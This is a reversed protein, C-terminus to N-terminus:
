KDHGAQASMIKLQARSEAIQRELQARHRTAQRDLNIGPNALDQEVEKLYSEAVALNQRLTQPNHWGGGNVTVYVPTTHAVQGTGAGCKAAIWIGHDM